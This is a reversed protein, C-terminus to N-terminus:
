ALYKDIYRSIEKARNLIMLHTGGEIKITSTDQKPFPIVQDKTGHLRLVDGKTNNAKWNLIQHVAWKSFRGDTKEMIKKFLANEKETKVGMVKGLVPHYMSFAREPITKILRLYNFWHYYFPFEKTSRISSVLIKKEVPIKESITQLVTGGFSLGILNVPENQPLYHDILRDCYHSFSENKEVPLWEVPVLEADIKLNRFASFDAGLGSICYLKKNDTGPKNNVM